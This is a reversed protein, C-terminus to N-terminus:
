GEGPVQVLRTSDIKGSTSEAGTAHLTDPDGGHQWQGCRETGLVETLGPRAADNAVQNVRRVVTHM